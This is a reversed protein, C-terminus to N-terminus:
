PAGRGADLAKVVRELTGRVSEVTCPDDPRTPFGERDFHPREGMMRGWEADGERVIEQLLHGSALVKKLYNAVAVLPQDVNNLLPESDKLHRHLVVALAGSADTVHSKLWTGIEIEAQQERPVPSAGKMAGPGAIRGIMEQPTFKRGQRIERELKADNESTKEDSSM